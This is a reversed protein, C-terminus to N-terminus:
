PKDAKNPNGEMEVSCLTINKDVETIWIKRENVSAESNKLSSVNM